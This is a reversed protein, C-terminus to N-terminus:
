LGWTRGHGTHVEAHKQPGRSEPIRSPLNQRQTLMQIRDPVWHTRAAPPPPKWPHSTSVCGEEGQSADTGGGSDQAPRGKQRLFHSCAQSTKGSTHFDGHAVRCTHVRVCVCM